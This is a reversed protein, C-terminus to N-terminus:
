ISGYRVIRRYLAQLSPDQSTSLYREEDTETLGSFTSGSISGLITTPVVKDVMVEGPRVDLVESAVEKLLKQARKPDTKANTTIYTLNDLEVVELSRLDGIAEVAKEKLSPHIEVRYVAM